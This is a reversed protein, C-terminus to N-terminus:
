KISFAAMQKPSHSTGTSFLYGIPKMRSYTVKLSPVDYQLIVVNRNTDTETTVCFHINLVRVTHHTPVAESINTCSMHKAETQPSGYGRVLM